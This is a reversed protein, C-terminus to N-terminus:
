FSTGGGVSSLTENSLGPIACEDEYWSAMEEVRLFTPSEDPQRGACQDSQLKFHNRFIEKDTLPMLADVLGALKTNPDYQWPWLNPTPNYIVRRPVGVAAAARASTERHADSLAADRLQQAGDPVDHSEGQDADGGPPREDFGATLARISEAHAAKLLLFNWMSSGVKSILCILAGPDDHTKRYYLTDGDMLYNYTEEYLKVDRFAGPRPDAQRHWPVDQDHHGNWRDARTGAETWPDRM